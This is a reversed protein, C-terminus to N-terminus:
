WFSFELDIPQNERLWWKCCKAKGGKTRSAERSIKIKGTNNSHKEDDPRSKKAEVVLKTIAVFM